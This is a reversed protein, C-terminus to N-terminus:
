RLAPASVMDVFNALVVSVRCLLWWALALVNNGIVCDIDIRIPHERCKYPKTNMTKNM